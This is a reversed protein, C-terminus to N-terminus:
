KSKKAALVFTLSLILLNKIIYQGELTPVFPASWTHQPLLVLPMSTAIFHGIVLVLVYKSLKPFLFLVGIAIESLAIVINFSEFPWFPMTKELLDRVLETAPSVGFLKLVGFYFYVIFLSIRSLPVAVSNSIQEIKAQFTNM